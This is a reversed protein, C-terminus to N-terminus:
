ESLNKLFTEFHTKLENISLEQIVARGISEILIFHIVNKDKKKDKKLANLMDTSKVLPDIPLHYGKLLQRIRIAENGPLKTINMSLYTAINMGISIAEGHTCTSTKEIAHGFTHGFNLKKREGTEKEDQNVVATKISVSDYVLKEIIDKDLSLAKKKNNELYSFLKADKIIAHKIIESFGCQVEKQPLTNLLTPDCIVFKPQNFVGVINKYSDFNVGNKGGVSADVQSLLSTSVFGFALGRMYTSAVFGTIDCVIGGGIGVIFSTRDTGFSLLKQFIHMVTDITKIKEGTGITILDAKKPFYKCYYKSVNTDTIIVIHTDPLYANLNKLSEGILINSIDKSGKITVKKM